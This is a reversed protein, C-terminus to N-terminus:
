RLLNHEVIRYFMVSGMPVFVILFLVWVLLSAQPRRRWLSPWLDLVIIALGSMAHYVVAGALAIEALGFIPNKYLAVFFGYAAPAFYVTATDLIHLCLFLVVGLGAIRRLAWDLQGFRGRYRAVEVVSRVGNGAM